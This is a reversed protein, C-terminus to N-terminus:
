LTRKVQIEEFCEIIDGQKIDQFDELTLGCELGEPVEKVDDKFRKLSSISSTYIVVGERILHAKAGRIIKGELVKCGAVTGVKPIKFIERM